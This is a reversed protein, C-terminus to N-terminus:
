NLETLTIANIKPQRMTANKANQALWLSANMSKIKKREWTREETLFVGNPTLDQKYLIM